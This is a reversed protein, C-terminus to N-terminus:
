SIHIVSIIYLHLAILIHSERNLSFMFGVFWGRHTPIDLSHCGPTVPPPSPPLADTPVDQMFARRSLCM